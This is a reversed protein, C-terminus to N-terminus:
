DHRREADLFVTEHEMSVSAGCDEVVVALGTPKGGVTRAQSYAFVVVWADDRQSYGYAQERLVGRRHALVEDLSKTKEMFDRVVADRDPEHQTFGNVRIFHEAVAVADSASMPEGCKTTEVESGCAAFWLFMAVLAVMATPSMVQHWTTVAGKSKTM